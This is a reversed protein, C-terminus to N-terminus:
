RRPELVHRYAVTALQRLDQPSYRALDEADARGFLLELFGAPAEADRQLVEGNNAM